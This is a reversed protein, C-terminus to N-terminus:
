EDSSSQTQIFGDSQMKWLKHFHSKHDNLLRSPSGQEVINGNDFVVIKDMSQLTSLRHAIVLSTRGRMVDDLSEHILKETITDLASTAEDLVLIPADKLFARAISIRQRQGGSLRVGREGVLTNYKEPLEMIFDHCKARKAAAIIDDDSASSKAFKINDLISRHFLTTDQPITAIQERLSEYQVQSIDQNDIIVHGSQPEVLRLLLSIFTSKGGGSYGILGVKEGSAIEM